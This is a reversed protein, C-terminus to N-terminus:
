QVPIFITYIIEYKSKSYKIQSTFPIHHYKCIQRIITVIGKYTIDRTVYFQKSPYYYKKISDLFSQISKSLQAKKFSIKSFICKNSYKEGNTELFNSFFSLPIPTKFIQSNNM